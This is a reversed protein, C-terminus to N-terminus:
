KTLRLESLKLAIDRFAQKIAEGNTANYFKTADTACATLTNIATSNGVVNFGITYVEIGKQKMGNCLAVAQAPSNDINAITGAGSLTSDIGLIDHESNYDGDTMLIAIKKTKAATYSVPKSEVPFVSAWNPSLMYWAWATGIQGATRGRPSLGDIKAMLANRNSTMLMMEDGSQSQSCNGNSTYEPMIFSGTGPGMDTYKQPGIRESVCNSTKSYNVNVSNNSTTPTCLVDDQNRKLCYSSPWGPAVVQSYLSGPIRVDGSFPVIGVKSTFTSQDNWVVINVLDKAAARMDIYKANGSSTTEAMSGSTDLMMAIELNVGGVSLTAKSVESGADESSQGGAPTNGQQTLYLDKIGFAGGVIGIFPTSIKADTTGVVSQEGANTVKEFKVHEGTIVTIRNKVAQDYYIKGLAQVDVNPQTQMARGVAIVSSDLASLTQDRASLWRGMDVAAGILGFMAFAMLGFLIAVDGATDSAFDSLKEASRKIVRHITPDVKPRMLAAHIRQSLTTSM